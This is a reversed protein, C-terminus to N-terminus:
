MIITPNKACPIFRLRSAVAIDTAHVGNRAFHPWHGRDDPFSPPMVARRVACAPKRVTLGAAVNDAILM